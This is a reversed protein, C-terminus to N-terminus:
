SLWKNLDRDTCRGLKRVDDEFYDSLKSRFSSSIANRVAKPKRNWNNIKTMLGTQLGPVSLYRRALRVYRQVRAITLSRRESAVNISLFNKRSDSPIELFGLVREYVGAADSKVDELFIPMVNRADCMSLLRDYQEGLRCIEGYFLLQADMCTKPIKDGNMRDSQANWASEFDRIDENTAFLQQNHLSQAMGIPDRLCVIFKADPNESLINRVAEQSYLYWVSAEGVAKHHETVDKFLREYEARTRTQQNALDTSYFHPEKVPSMFINPHEGLWQALATTGCKPAGIIFFNPKTM